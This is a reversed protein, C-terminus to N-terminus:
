RQKKGQKYICAREFLNIFRLFNKVFPGGGTVWIIFRQIHKFLLKYIKEDYQFKETM